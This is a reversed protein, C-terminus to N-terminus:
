SEQEVGRPESPAVGLEHLDCRARLAPVSPGPPPQGHTLAFGLPSPTGPAGCGRWCGGGAWGRWCDYAMAKRSCTPQQSRPPGDTGWDDGGGGRRVAPSAYSQCFDPGEDHPVSLEQGCYFGCVGYRLCSDLNEMQHYVSYFCYGCNRRLALILHSVCGCHAAGVTRKQLCAQGYSSLNPSCCPPSLTGCDNPKQQSDRWCAHSGWHLPPSAPRRPGASSTGGCWCGSPSPSGHPPGEHRAPVSAASLRRPSQTM